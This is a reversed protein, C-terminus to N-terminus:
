KNVNKMKFKPFNCDQYYNMYWYRRGNEWETLIAGVSQGTHKAYHKARDIIWKFKSCYEHQCKSVRRTATLFGMKILGPNDQPVTRYFEHNCGGTNFCNQGEECDLLVAKKLSKYGHSGAIEKWNLQM